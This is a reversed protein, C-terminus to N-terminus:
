SVGLVKSHSIKFLIAASCSKDFDPTKGGVVTLSRRGGWVCVVLLKFGVPAKFSFLPRFSPSLTQEHKCDGVAHNFSGSPTQLHLHSPSPLPDPSHQTTNHQTTHGRPENVLEGLATQHSRYFLALLSRPPHFIPGLGGCTTDGGGEKKKKKKFFFPFGVPATRQVRPWPSWSLM